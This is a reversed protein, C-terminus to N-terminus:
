KAREVSRTRDLVIVSKGSDDTFLVAIAQAGPRKFFLTHAAPAASIRGPEPAAPSAEREQIFGDARMLRRVYETNIGLSHSNIIADHEASTAADVFSTHSALTSGPPLASLLHRAAAADAPDQQELPPRTVAILGRTGSSFPQLQVTVYYRGEARGLILMNGRRDEVLPQGLAQRFAAAIEVPSAPAVFGRIRAPTGNVVTEQGIDFTEVQAPLRVQPWAAEAPAARTSGLLVLTVLALLCRGFLFKRGAFRQMCPAYAM